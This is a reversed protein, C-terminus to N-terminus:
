KKEKGMLHQKTNKEPKLLITFGCVDSDPSNGLDLVGSEQRHLSNQRQGSTRLVFQVIATAHYVTLASSLSGSPCGEPLSSSLQCQVCVSNCKALNVTLNAAALRGFVEEVQAIHRSWTSSYIVIDDLYAECDAVGKLVLNVLRQFTAPANRMGFAMVTYQCFDDTTVFASIECARQTLPVQWYGKLLDLKTVCAASGVRDICDDFGLMDGKALFTDFLAIDSDAEKDQKKKKSMARTTVCVPFAEPYQKELDDPCKSLEKEKDELELERFALEKLRFELVADSMQPLDLQHQYAPLASPKLVGGEALSAKLAERLNDKLRKDGSAIEIDYHSALSLLQEKTLQCLLEESPASIFDDIAEMCSLFSSVAVSGFVGSQRAPGPTPVDEPENM